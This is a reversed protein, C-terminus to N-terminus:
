GRKIEEEIIKFIEKGDYGFNRAFIAREPHPMLGMVRNKSDYLGAINQMSGNPNDLYKLFEYEYVDEFCVYKGERHAIPLSINKVIGNFKLELAVNQM